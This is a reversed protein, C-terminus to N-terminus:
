EESLQGVALWEMPDVPKGYHRIEFYLKPGDLSGSSGVTAIVDGGKVREDVAKLFQEAHAVITFYHDGHDIIMMKGYEKFWDAFVVVGDYVAQVSQGKRAKILVGNAYLGTHATIGSKSGYTNNIRGGTPIPLAGQLTSFGSTPPKLIPKRMFASKAMRSRVIDLEKTKDALVGRLREIESAKAMFRTFLEEDSKLLRASFYGAKMAGEMDYSSLLPAAYGMQGFRYLMGLRGKIINLEGESDRALKDISAELVSCDRELDAVESSTGTKAALEDLLRMDIRAADGNHGGDIEESIEPSKTVAGQLSVDLHPSTSSAQAFCTSGWIVLSIWALPM